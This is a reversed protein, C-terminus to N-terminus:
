KNGTGVRMIVYKKKEIAEDLPKDLEVFMYPRDQGPEKIIRLTGINASPTRVAQIIMGIAVGLLLVMVIIGTEM